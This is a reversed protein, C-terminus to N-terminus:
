KIQPSLFYEFIGPTLNIWQIMRNFKGIFAQYSYKRCPMWTLTAMQFQLTQGTEIDSTPDLVYRLQNESGYCAINSWPIPNTTPFRIGLLDGEEVTIYDRVSLYKTYMGQTSTILTEGVLM